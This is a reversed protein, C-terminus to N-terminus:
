FTVSLGGLFQIGRSPYNLYREYEKGLLNNMQLFVGFRDNIEYRAGLNLDIIDDLEFVETTEGNLAMLGGLYYVDTTVTLKDVPFITTNLAAKFNPRHWAEALTAMKYNYFDFRLSSRVKGPSEFNM